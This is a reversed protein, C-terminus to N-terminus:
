TNGFFNRDDVIQTDLEKATAALQGRIIANIGGEEVPSHNFIADMLAMSEADEGFEDIRDITSSVLTHGFRFAATSFEVSMQGSVDDPVDM